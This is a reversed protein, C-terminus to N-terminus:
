LRALYVDLSKRLFMKLCELEEPELLLDPLPPGETPWIREFALRTNDSFISWLRLKFWTPNFRLIDLLIGWILTVWRFSSFWFSSRMMSIRYGTGSYFSDFSDFSLFFPESLVDGFGAVVAPYLLCWRPLFGVVWSAHLGDLGSGLSASLACFFSSSLSPAACRVM